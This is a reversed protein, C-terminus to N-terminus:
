QINNKKGPRNFVILANSLSTISRILVGAARGGGMSNPPCKTENSRMNTLGEMVKLKMNIGVV